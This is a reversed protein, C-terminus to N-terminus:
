SEFASRRSDIVSRQSTSPQELFCVEGISVCCIKDKVIAQGEASAFLGDNDIGRAELTVTDGPRIPVLFHAGLIKTARIDNAPVASKISLTENRVFHYLCLGLQGIMEVVSTGPYIPIAPFHGAFVPDDPAVIRHGRIVGRKLDVFDISDVFLLPERHPLIRKVDASGFSVNGEADGVLRNRRLTKLRSEIARDNM